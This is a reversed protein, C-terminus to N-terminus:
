GTATGPLIWAQDAQEIRLHEGGFTKELVPRAKEPDDVGVFIYGEGDVGVERLEFTGRWRHMDASIDEALADLEKKNVDRDHLRLTVGKVAAGCVDDDFAASPIRYVDVAQHEDDVVLGTYVDSYRTDAVDQIYDLVRLLPSDDPTAPLSDEPRTGVCEFPSSTSASPSTSVRPAGPGAKLGGDTHGTRLADIWLGAVVVVGTTATAAALWIRNKM